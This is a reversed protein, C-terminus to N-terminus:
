YLKEIVEDSIDYEHEASPFGGSQVEACYEAFAEKMREGISAYRKVFKPTFDSYMGLMDQYVLVQGDCFNGAGIGITPIKLAETILKALKSPVCELVLAFAGAAEVAKADDLLKQATEADKGQVRYGGLANISQPTLGL